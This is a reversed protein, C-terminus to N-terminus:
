LEELDDFEVTKSVKKKRFFKVSGDKQIKGYITEGLFAKAWVDQDNVVEISIWNLLMTRKDSVELVIMDDGVRHPISKTAVISVANGDIAGIVGTFKGNITDVKCVKDIYDSYISKETEKKTM